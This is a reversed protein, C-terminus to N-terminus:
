DHLDFIDIFKTAAVFNGEDLFRQTFKVCYSNEVPIEFVEMFKRMHETRLQSIMNSAMQVIEPNLKVSGNKLLVDIQEIIYRCIASPM